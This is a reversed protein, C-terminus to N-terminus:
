GAARPCSSKAHVRAPHPEYKVEARNRLLFTRTVTQGTIKDIRRRWLANSRWWQGDVQEFHHDEEYVSFSFPQHRDARLDGRLCKQDLWLRLQFTSDTRNQLRLDRYPWMVTAGSAFPLVRGQDPFPDFSHHHREVVTLASHMALWFILNSSQCIGGGIGSQAVGRSLEMGPVFGRTRSPRGVQKCFSFTEGPRILLGDLRDIVRKLNHVKNLQLTLDIGPHRRILVSQHTKVRFDLREVQRTSAYRHGDVQWLCLREAVRIARALRNLAPHYMGIPRPIFAPRRLM